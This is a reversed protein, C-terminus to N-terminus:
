KDFIGDGKSEFLGDLAQETEKSLTGPIQEGPKLMGIQPGNMIDDATLTDPSQGGFRQHGWAVPRDPFEERLKAVEELTMPNFREFEANFRVYGPGKPQMVLATAARKVIAVLGEAKRPSYRNCVTPKEEATFELVLGPTMTCARQREGSRLADSNAARFKQMVAWFHECVVGSAEGDCVCPARNMLSRADANPDEIIGTM